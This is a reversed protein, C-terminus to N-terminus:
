SPSGTQAIDRGPTPQKEAVYWGFLGALDRSRLLQLGSAEIGDIFTRHDFRDNLPHDLLRRALPNLIFRKLVEEAYFRGGPKLVRAVERLANRWSPIHHIIGFDFVADYADDPAQIREADGVWLRVRDARGELRCNALDIMHPDLDFGDVGGAGFIDLIIEAGIGRGCGLELAKGGGVPGGFDLLRRAEIHRQIAARIPNNMLLKEVRNLLM